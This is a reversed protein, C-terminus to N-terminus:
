FLVPSVSAGGALVVPRMPIPAHEAGVAEPARKLKLSGISDAADIDVRQGKYVPQFLSGAEYRYLYRVEVLAGVDPVPESPPITVNGVPIPKNNTGMAAVAVSRQNNHATVVLTASECFKFKLVSGGSNPKGAAYQASSERLIVGEANVKRMEELFARKAASGRHVPVLHIGAGERMEAELCAFRKHFPADELSGGLREGLRLADFVYYNVGILEGDIDIDGVLHEFSQRLGKVTTEPLDVILGRRNVGMYAGGSRLVRMRVGDKKEQMDWDDDDLLEELRTEDVPNSLQSGIVSAKRETGAPTTTQQAQGVDVYGKKRKEDLTKSAIKMANTYTTPDNTKRSSNGATGNRGYVIHVHYAGTGDQQVSVEYFKDSSGQTYELRTSSVTTM